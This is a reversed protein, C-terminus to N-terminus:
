QRYYCVRENSGIYLAGRMIASLLVRENSGIYLARRMIASLLM